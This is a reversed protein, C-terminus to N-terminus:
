GVQLDAFSYPALPGVAHVSVRPGLSEVLEGVADNFQEFRDEDVLYSVELLVASTRPAEGRVSVAVGALRGTIEQVDETGLAAVAQAIREGLHVRAQHPAADGQRQVGAALERLARDRRLAEAIAGDEVQEVRVHVEVRGRVEQLTAALEDEHPALLMDVLRAPDRVLTGYRAPLVPAAAFLQDVREAHDRLGDRVPADADHPVVAAAVPGHVVFDVGDSDVDPAIDAPVVGLLRWTAVAAPTGESV